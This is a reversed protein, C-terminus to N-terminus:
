KIMKKHKQIYNKSTGKIENLSIPGISKNSILGYLITDHINNIVRKIAIMKINFKLLGPYLNNMPRRIIPQIISIIGSFLEAACINYM